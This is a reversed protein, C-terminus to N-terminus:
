QSAKRSTSSRVPKKLPMAYRPVIAGPYCIVVGALRHGARAADEPEAGGLRAALYAAAFSDGAATTDVVPKTLPEARVEGSRGAFRLICAPEALKLVVEPSSIAALLATNSEGPFLPALDETSALVIDATEFAGSFVSRAVALDPWGRARFNTDFAFRTGLLRARKLAAMLRERGDEQLISLTIASLYVIDYSALSNLIDETEPLDMLSRAAASDRWHFFRREGRDDTQILYLGPLKGPLRAVRKTGIGESAWGAIMEDSLADDGLATIYDVDVGLRSLYVATNLTDGGYFRTYLGGAQGGPAQRLEIMCEGICAVRTM